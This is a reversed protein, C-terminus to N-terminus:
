PHMESRCAETNASAQVWSAQKSWSAHMVLCGPQVASAVRKLFICCSGSISSKKLSGRLRRNAIHRSPMFGNSEPVYESVGISSIHSFRGAWTLREHLHSSYAGCIGLFTALAHKAQDQFGHLAQKHGLHYQQCLQGFDNCGDWARQNDSLFVVSVFVPTKCM